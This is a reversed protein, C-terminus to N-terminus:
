WDFDQDYIGLTTFNNWYDILTPNLPFLENIQVIRIRLEKKATLSSHEKPDQNPQKKELNILITSDNQKIVSQNNIKNEKQLSKEKENPKTCSSNQEVSKDTSSTFSNTTQDNSNNLIDNEKTINIKNLTYLLCTNINFFILIGKLSHSLLENCTLESVITVLDNNM